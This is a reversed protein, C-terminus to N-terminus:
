EPILSVQRGSDRLITVPLYVVRGPVVDGIREDDRDLYPVQVWGETEDNPEVMCCHVNEGEAM